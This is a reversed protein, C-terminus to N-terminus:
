FSVSAKTGFDTKRCVKQSTLQSSRQDDFDTSSIPLAEVAFGPVSQDYRATEGPTLASKRGIPSPVYSNTTMTPALENSPLIIRNIGTSQLGIRDAWQRLRVALHSVTIRVGSAVEDDGMRCLGTQPLNETSHVILNNKRIPLLHTRNWGDKQM